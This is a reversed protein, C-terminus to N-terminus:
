RTFRVKVVPSKCPEQEIAILGAAALQELAHYKGRRGVGLEKLGANALKVHNCRSRWAEWLLHLAVRYTCKDADIRVLQREWMVPFMIFKVRSRARAKKRKTAAKKTFAAIEEESLSRIEPKV